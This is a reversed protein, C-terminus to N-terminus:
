GPDKKLLLPRDQSVLFLDFAEEEVGFGLRRPQIEDIGGVSEEALRQDVGCDFQLCDGSDVANPLM